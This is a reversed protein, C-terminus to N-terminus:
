QHQFVTMKGPLLNLGVSIIYIFIIVIFTIQKRALNKTMTMNAHYVGRLRFLIYPMSMGSLTPVIVLEEALALSPIYHKLQILTWQM